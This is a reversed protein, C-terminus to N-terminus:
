YLLRSCKQRMNKIKEFVTVFFGHNEILKYVIELGLGGCDDFGMNLLCIYIGINGYIM